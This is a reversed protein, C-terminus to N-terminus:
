NILCLITNKDIIDIVRGIASEPKNFLRKEMMPIDVIKDCLIGIFDGIKFHESNTVNVPIRGALAVAVKSGTALEEERAGFCSAYNDSIFGIFRSTNYANLKEIRLGGCKCLCVADGPQMPTAPIYAEALDAFVPNFVKVGTINGSADINGNVKLNGKVTATNNPGEVRISENILSQVNNTLKEMDIANNAIKRNTISLDILKDGSTSDNLLKDGKVSNVVFHQDSLSKTAVKTATVCRDTLHIEKIQNSAIHRDLVAQNKIKIDSVSQNGLLEEIITQNAIKEHTITKNALKSNMITSNAINNNLITEIAIKDTTVCLNRLKPTTVSSDALKIDNIALDAVKERTVNLDVIKDTSVSNRALKRQTVNLDKIKSETVANNEIKSENIINDALLIRTISKEEFINVPSFKKWTKTGTSDINNYKLVGLNPHIYLTGGEFKNASIDKTICIVRGDKLISENVKKVGDAM